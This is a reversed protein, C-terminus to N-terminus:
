REFFLWGFTEFDPFISWLLNYAVHLWYLHLTIYFDTYYARNDRLYRHCFFLAKYDSNNPLRFFLSIQDSKFRSDLIFQNKGTFCDFHFLCSILWWIVWIRKPLYTKKLCFYLSTMSFPFSRLSPMGIEQDTKNFGKNISIGVQIFHTSKKILIRLSFIGKVQKDKLCIAFQSFLSKFKRKM